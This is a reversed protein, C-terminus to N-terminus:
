DYTAPNHMLRQRFAALVLDFHTALAKRLPTPASDYGDARSRFYDALEGIVQDRTEPWAALAHLAEIRALPTPDANLIQTEVALLRARLEDTPDRWLMRHACVSALQARMAGGTSWRGCVSAGADPDITMLSQLLQFQAKSEVGATGNTYGDFSVGNVKYALGAPEGTAQEEFLAARASMSENVVQWNGPGTNVANLANALARLLLEILSGPPATSIRQTGQGSGRGSTALNPCSLLMIGADCVGSLINWTRGNGPGQLAPENLQAPLNMCLSPYQKCPNPPLQGAAGTGPAPQCPQGGPQGCPIYPQYPRRHGPPGPQPV